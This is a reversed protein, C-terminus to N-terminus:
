KKNNLVGNLWYIFQIIWSVPTPPHATFTPFLRGLLEWLGVIGAIILGVTIKVGLVIVALM